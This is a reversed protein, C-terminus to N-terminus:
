VAARSVAPPASCRRGWTTLPEGWCRLWWRKCTPLRRAPWSGGPLRRRAGPRASAEVVIVSPSAAGHLALELLERPPQAGDLDLHLVQASESLRACLAAIWPKLEGNGEAPGSKRQDGPPEVALTRAAEALTPGHWPPASRGQAAGALQAARRVEEVLRSRGMGAEGEVIVVRERALALALAEAQAQRGVLSPRLRAPRREPELPVATRRAGLRVAEAAVAAASSPDARRIPSCCIRLWTPSARRLTM